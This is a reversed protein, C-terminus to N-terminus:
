VSERNSVSDEDDGDKADNGDAGQVGEVEGIGGGDKDDPAAEFGEEADKVGAQGHHARQEAVVKSSAQDRADLASAVIVVAAAVM